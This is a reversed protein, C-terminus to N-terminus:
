TYMHPGLPWYILLHTAPVCLLKYVVRGCVKKSALWYREEWIHGRVPSGSISKSQNKKTRGEAACCGGSAEGTAYFSRVVHAQAAM